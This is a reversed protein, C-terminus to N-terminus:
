TTFIVDNQSRHPGFISIFLLRISRLTVSMRRTIQLPCSIGKSIYYLYLFRYSFMRCIDAIGDHEAIIRIYLM